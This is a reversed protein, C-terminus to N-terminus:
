SERGPYVWGNAVCGDLTKTQQQMVDALKGAGPCSTHGHGLFHGVEHNIVYTRYVELPAPWWSTATNWREVNIAVTDGNRCSFYGGTRLPACLADVTAPAGLVIELDSDATAAVRQWTAEDGGIWSRGDSLISDVWMAFRLPSYDLAPDIVVRFTTAPGSGYEIGSSSAVECGTFHDGGTEGFCTDRDPGGVQRNDGKAGYLADSGQGGRLTDAGGHAVLVDRGKAGLLHDPGAGGLLVDSGPGGILFDRGRRGRLTDNGGGGCILDHGGGGDIRDSGGGGVILDARGTGTLVDPESTGVQTAARGALEPVHELCAVAAACDAPTADFVAGDWELTPEKTIALRLDGDFWVYDAAQGELDCRPYGIVGFAAAPGVSALVAAFLILGGLASSARRM